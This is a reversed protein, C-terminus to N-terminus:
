ARADARRWWARQGLRRDFAERSRALMDDTLPADLDRATRRGQHVFTRLQEEHLGHEAARLEDRLRADEILEIELQDREHEIQRRALELAARNREARIVEDTTPRHMLKLAVASTDLAVLLAVIVWYERNIARRAGRLRELSDMRAGLGDEGDILAELEAIEADRQAVLAALEAERAPLEATAAAEVEAARAAADSQARARAAELEGRLRDSEAELRELEDLKRQWEPGDGARGTGCSGDSECAVLASQEKRAEEAAAHEEELRAVEPDDSLDIAGGMSAAELSEVERTAAAIAATGYVPHEDIDEARELKVEAAHSAMESEVETQFIRLVLPEAIVWGILAALLLRITGTVWKRVGTVDDLSIVIYRDLVFIVTGWFLGFTVAAVPGFHLLDLAFVSGSGTAILGVIVLLLSGALARAAATGTRDGLDVGGTWALFRTIARRHPGAADLPDPNAM